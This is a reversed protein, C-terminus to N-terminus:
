PFVGLLKLGERIYMLAFVLLILGLIKITYIYVGSKLFAGSRGVLLAVIAKSGVLCTYFGTIFLVPAPISVKWANIVAPGGVSFWFIYPHPNLLNAIVGKKLAHSRDKQIQDRSGKFSISEWALFAIFCAGLLTITGLIVSYGSVKSLILIILLVIPLDTVLPAAAIRLGEKSGHKLTESIVLTLLPGPSIGAASGFVIGSILYTFSEIM